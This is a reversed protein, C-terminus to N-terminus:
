PATSEKASTPGADKEAPLYIHFASGKGQESEVDICGGHRNMISYCTALGLGQGTTKTTFFPDFIRPLVEKPMGVGSDKISIKVYNGAALNARPRETLLINEASVEIVGGGPMAQKANIIINDIVQGIQNRDFNCSWLDDPAEFRCSVNSDSLAFQATERVMPFLREIERVPDGGKAFTLLQRTLGRARDIMDMAKSLHRHVTTEQTKGCAMEIYGFIGGMLNNFDHAIGGALIGLSELKQNLQLQQEYKLHEEEAKKRETIDWIIGDIKFPREAEDRSLRGRASIHHVSGDPWVVRYEHNYMVNRSITLSLAEKLKERDDPHVANFFESPTGKFTAPAIGLLCCAQKDFNRKDTPINWQWVGMNASRIALDLKVESERMDEQAQKLKAINRAMDLHTKIRALVEVPHFPKTVYDAGGAELASVKLETKENGSIFIVPVDATSPEQKLRKCAEIGNTGPISIDMLVLDPRKEAVACLASEGDVAQRVRYGVTTLIYSLSKLSAINDEVILIEEQASTGANQVNVSDRWLM